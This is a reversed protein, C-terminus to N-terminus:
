QGVVLPLFVSDIEEVDPASPLPGGNGVRLLGLAPANIHGSDALTLELTAGGLAEYGARPTVEVEFNGQGVGAVGYYGDVNTIAVHREGSMPESLTVTAGALGPEDEEQEGSNNEDLYVLGNVQVLM